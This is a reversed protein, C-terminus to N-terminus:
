DCGDDMEHVSGCLFCVAGEESEEDSAMCQDCLILMGNDTEILLLNEDQSDGCVLCRFDTRLAM